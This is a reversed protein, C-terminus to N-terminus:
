PLPLRRGQLQTGQMCGRFDSGLEPDRQTQAAEPPGLGSAWERGKEKAEKNDCLGSEECPVVWRM